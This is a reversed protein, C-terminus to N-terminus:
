EGTLKQWRSAAPDFTYHEITAQDRRIRIRLVGKAIAEVSEVRTAMLEDNVPYRQWFRRERDFALLGRDTGLWLAGPTSAMCLPTWEADSFFNRYYRREGSRGDLLVLRGPLALWVTKPQHPDRFTWLADADFPKVGEAIAAVRIRMGEAKKRIAGDEPAVRLGAEYARLARSPEGAAEWLDGIMMWRWLRRAKTDPKPKLEEAQGALMAASTAPGKEVLFQKLRSYARTRRRGNAATDLLAVNEAEAADFKGALALIQVLEWRYISPLMSYYYPRKRGQKFEEVRSIAERIYEEALDLRQARMCLRSARRYCAAVSRPNRARKAEELYPQLCRVTEAANGMGAHVTAMQYLYQNNGPHMELLRRYYRIADAPRGGYQCALALRGLIYNEHQKFQKLVREYAGAAQAYQQSRYAAEALCFTLAPDDAHRGHDAQLRTLLDPLKRHRRFIEVFGSYGSLDGAPDAQALLANLLDAYAQIFDLTKGSQHHRVLVQRAARQIEADAAQLSLERQLQLAEKEQGLRKLERALNLKEGAKEKETAAEAVARRLKELRTAARDGKPGAVVSGAPLLLAVLVASQILATFRHM